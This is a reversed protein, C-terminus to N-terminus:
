MLGVKCSSMSLSCVLERCVKVELTEVDDRISKAYMVLPQIQAAFKLEASQREKEVVSQLSVLVPHLSHLKM